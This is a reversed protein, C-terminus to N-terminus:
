ALHRGGDVHLVAGTIFLPAKAFFAVADAVAFPGPITHTPVRDLIAQELGRDHGALMVTGLIIANVAVGLGAGEVALSGTMGPIASRTAIYASFGKPPTQTLVDCINIIRGQKRESMNKMAAGSLLLPATLNIATMDQIDPVKLSDVPTKKYLSVNNVLIDIRGFHEIVRSILRNVQGPDTFDAQFSMSGPLERCLSQAADKSHNYHIALIFGESFLRRCLQAGIRKAGGTVLAIKKETQQVFGRYRSNWNLAPYM